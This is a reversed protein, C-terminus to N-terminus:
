TLGPKYTCFRRHKVPDDGIENESRYIQEVAMDERAPWKSVMTM